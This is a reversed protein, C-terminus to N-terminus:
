LLLRFLNHIALIIFFLIKKEVFIRKYFKMVEHSIIFEKKSKSM